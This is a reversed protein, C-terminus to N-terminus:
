GNKVKPSKLRPWQAVNPYPPLHIPDVTDGYLAARAREADNWQHVAIAYEVAEGVTVSITEDALAAALAARETDSPVADADVNQPLGLQTSLVSSALARVSAHCYNVSEPMGSGNAAAQADALSLEYLIRIPSTTRQTADSLTLYDVLLENRVLRKLALWHKAEMGNRLYALQALATM